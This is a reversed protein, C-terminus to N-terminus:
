IWAQSWIGSDSFGKLAQDQIKDIMLCRVILLFYSHTDYKMFASWVGNNRALYALNGAFAQQLRPHLLPVGTLSVQQVHPWIENFSDTSYQYISQYGLM